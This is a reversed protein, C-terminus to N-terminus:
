LASTSPIDVDDALPQFPVQVALGSRQDHGGDLVLLGEISLGVGIVVQQLRPDGAIGIPQILLLDVAGAPLNDLRMEGLRPADAELVERVKGVRVFRGVFEFLDQRGRAV